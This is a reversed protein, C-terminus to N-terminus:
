KKSYDSYIYWGSPKIWNWVLWRIWVSGISTRSHKLFYRLHVFSVMNLYKILSDSTSTQDTKLLVCTNSASKKAVIGIIKEPSTNQNAWQDQSGSQSNYYGCYSISDSSYHKRFFKTLKSDTLLLGESSAKVHISCGSSSSSSSSSKYVEYCREIAAEGTLM